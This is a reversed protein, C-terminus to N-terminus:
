RKTLLIKTAKTDKLVKINKYDEFECSLFNVEYHLKELEKETAKDSYVNVLWKAFETVDDFTLGNIYAEIDKICEQRTMVEPKNSKAM